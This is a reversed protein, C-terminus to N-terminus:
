RDGSSQDGQNSRPDREYFLFGRRVAPAPQGARRDESAIPDQRLTPAVPGGVVLGAALEAGGEGAAVLPAADLAEPLVPQQVLKVPRGELSKRPPKVVMKGRPVHHMSKRAEIWILVAQGGGVGYVQCVRTSGTCGGRRERMPRREIQSTNAGPHGDVWSSAV